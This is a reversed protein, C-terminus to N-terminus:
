SDIEWRISWSIDFNLVGLWLVSSLMGIVVTVDTIEAVIEVRRHYSLLFSIYTILVSILLGIIIKGQVSERNEKAYAFIFITAVLFILSISYISFYNNILFKYTKKFGKHIVHSIHFNTFMKMKSASSYIGTSVITKLQNKLATSKLLFTIIVNTLGFTETRLFNHLIIKM